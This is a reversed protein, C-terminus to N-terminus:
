WILVLDKIKKILSNNAEDMLLNNFSNNLEIIADFKINTM